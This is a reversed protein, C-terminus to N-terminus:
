GCMLDNSEIVRLCAVAGGQLGGGSAFRIRRAACPSGSREAFDTVSSARGRSLSAASAALTVLHEIAGSPTKSALIFGVFARCLPTLIFLILGIPVLEVRGAGATTLAQSYRMKEKQFLGWAACGCPPPAVPPKHIRRCRVGLGSSTRSQSWSYSVLTVWTM